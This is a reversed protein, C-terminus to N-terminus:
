QVQDAPLLPAVVDPDFQDGLLWSEAHPITSELRKLLSVAKARNEDRDKEQVAALDLLGRAFDYRGDYQEATQISKKFTRAAKTHNGRIAALRGFMRQSHARITPYCWAFFHCQFALKRARSVRAGSTPTTWDPGLLAEILWPYTRIAFEAYFLDQRLQKQVTEFTEVAKDYLSAQIHLFGLHHLAVSRSVLHGRGEYGALCDRISDYADSLKGMRAEANAIGYKAWCILERDGVLQGHLLEMHGAEFEQRSEGQVFHAHRLIHCAMSRALSDEGLRELEAFASKVVAEAKDAEGMTYLCGSWYVQIVATEVITESRKAFRLARNVFHRSLIFLAISTSTWALWTLSRAITEPRGSKYANVVGSTAAQVFHLTRGQILEVWALRDLANSALEFRRRRFQDRSERILWPNVVWFLSTLLRLILAITSKPRSCGVQDLEKDLWSTADDFRSARVHIEAIRHMVHALQISNGAHNLALHFTELADDPENLRLKSTALREFLRYRVQSSADPPLMQQSRKWFEVAEDNAYARYSLEGAMMQYVFARSDRASHYHYAIDFIRDNSFSVETKDTADRQLFELLHDVSLHEIAEVLEAYKLHLARRESEGLRSLVTERIKDHYTDVVRRDGTGILRVLKESRMHTVLSFAGTLKQCVESAETLAVAQGAVAIAHLLDVAHSPLRALKRDILQDLPIPEFQGTREDFSDLLQEVFYPNGSTDAFLGASQERLRDADIKLRSAVLDVCQQDTLPAVSVEHQEFTDTLENCREKWEKLFSSDNSEDSRYTGLLVLRPSNPPSLLNFLVEASDGDGWQLDDIFLVVPHTRGIRTLLQKLALFARFRLQRDDIGRTDQDFRDEIASVRRITPFLRALLHIDDPIWRHIADGGRSRLFSVLADVVSDVAKYPVSERDYCRGSLVLVNGNRRLQNLFHEVLSTKGEGSRGSVFVVQPKGDHIVTEIVSNLNRLQSERGILPTELPGTPAVESDFSDHGSSETVFDLVEAIQDRDPRQNPDRQLLLDVLETLDEPLGALNRLKPAAETQKKILLQVGSGNHPVKGTLAEYLMVGFAYWDCAASREGDAQEPAAYRPTGAFQKISVSLTQDTAEQLDAILGFDLLKVEGKENVLVNSPKLDRHVIGRAHLESIGRALQKTADRLRNEDILGKPRVHELFDVGDVLDMTFFWQDGDFELTQMGVLNPHNIESLSRFERRFRHLRDADRPSESGRDSIRPLTKLAVRDGRKLHRAEYVVGFGGRGLERLLEYEGLRRAAPIGLTITQDGEEPTDRQFDQSMMTSEFFAQRILRAHSPFLSLYEASSPNEGNRRRFEIDIHLLNQFLIERSSKDIRDLFREMPKVEGRKLHKRYDRCITQIQDFVNRQEQNSM